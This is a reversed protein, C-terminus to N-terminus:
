FSVYHVGDWFIHRYERAFLPKLMYVFESFEETVHAIDFYECGANLVVNRVKQYEHSNISKERSRDSGTTSRFFCRNTIAYKGGKMIHMAEMMTQAKTEPLAGWLGRNYLIFNTKQHQKRFATDSAFATTIDPYDWDFGSKNYREMNTQYSEPTYRCTGDYACGTFNWGRFQENGNWGYESVFTLTTRGDEESSIYQYGEVSSPEARVSKAEMRGRFLGGDTGGGLSQM